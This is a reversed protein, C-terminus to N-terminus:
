SPSPYPSLALPTSASSQGVFKPVEVSNPVRPHLSKSLSPYASESSAKGVSEVCHFSVSPSPYPSSLVPFLGSAQGVTDPPEVKSRNPQGSVSESPADSSSRLPVLPGTHVIASPASMKGFSADCCASVSPSPKPSLAVPVFPSAQGECDPVDLM